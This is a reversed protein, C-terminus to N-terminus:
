CWRRLGGGEAVEGDAVRLGGDWNGGGESAVGGGDEAPEEEEVAVEVIPCELSSGSGKGGRGM